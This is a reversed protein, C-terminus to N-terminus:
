LLMDGNAPAKRLQIFKKRVFLKNLKKMFM